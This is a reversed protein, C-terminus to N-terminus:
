EVVDMTELEGIALYYLSVDGVKFCQINHMNIPLDKSICDAYKRCTKLIVDDSYERYYYINYTYYESPIKVDSFHKAVIENIETKNVRCDQVGNIWTINIGIRMIDNIITCNSETGRVNKIEIQLDKTHLKTTDIEKILKEKLDDEKFMYIMEDEKAPYYWIENDRSNYGKSVTDLFTPEKIAAIKQEYKTECTNSKNGIGNLINRLADLM